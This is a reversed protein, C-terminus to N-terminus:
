SSADPVFLAAVAEADARNWPTDFRQVVELVAREDAMAKQPQGARAFQLDCGFGAVTILMTLGIIEHM